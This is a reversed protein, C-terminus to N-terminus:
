LSSLTINYIREEFDGSKINAESEVKEHAGWVGGTNM